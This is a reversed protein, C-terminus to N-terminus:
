FPLEPIFGEADSTYFLVYMNASYAGSCSFSAGITNQGGGCASFVFFFDM